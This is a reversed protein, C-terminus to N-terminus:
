KKRIFGGALMRGSHITQRRASFFKAPNSYTCIGAIKINESKIGSSELQLSNVKWLDIHIKGSEANRFSIDSMDYGEVRFRDAVEDGVEFKDISISPGIAARMSSPDCDFHQQMQDITRIVINAVTGKWGAHVAAFVKKSQDYILVPVCDATTVGICVEPVNTILADVDNLHQSRDTESISLFSKDIICVNSSHTQRPVFLNNIDVGLMCCLRKRNETVCELSDDSMNGLNLSSYADASVGSNRTTFFASLDEKNSLDVELYEINDTIKYQM